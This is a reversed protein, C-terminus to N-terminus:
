VALTASRRLTALLSVGLPIPFRRILHREFAFVTALVDNLIGPNNNEFDSRLGDASGLFRRVWRFTAIPPFLLVNFYTIYPQPLQARAFADALTKKTYRRRHESVIDQNGWLSPLAPVTILLLGGPKLLRVAESLGAVDDDMHELVDLALVVDFSAPVIPTAEIKGVVYDINRDRSRAHIPDSDIGLVRGKPGALSGLWRLGEVPGCGLSAISLSTHGRLERYLAMELIRQRGRFWWHWQEFNAYHKAFQRRM